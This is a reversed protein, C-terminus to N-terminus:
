IELYQKTMYTQLNKKFTTTNINKICPPVANWSKISSYFSGEQYQQLKHKPYNLDKRESARNEKLSQQQLYLQQINEPAKQDLAKKVHVALNIRRKAALPIMELKKLAQTSSTSKSLGLMSKAAYNQAQQIRNCNSSGCNNWIIDAYAFHPTVLSTYLVRRQKMPIVHNIRNLNRISSIAKQKVHTIHRNWDLSQDIYVGLLKLCKEGILIKTEEGNTVEVQLEDASSLRMKTGILMVETKTPNCLLSNSNYYDNAKKIAAELKRGLEKVIKGKIVIQMDDAYTFIEYEDLKELMDNTCTIFLLPGLISGQPVGSEIHEMKSKLRGFKVMQKRNTLYSKVWTTATENLGMEDLKRLILNHALSDFAKSLDLSAIAVYNGHDIHKKISEILEFLITTTSHYKRYAHQRPNLLNHSNYHTVLQDVASREFIKSIITLISVPRYQSPDNNDGKKHLAKVTAIKLQDPFIKTEYSLNVMNKIDETIVPTAAKILKAPLEDIGTAVNPKIRQILQKIKVATEPYFHFIGKSNLKLPSFNINLRRQVEIGVTSFYKNFRNATDENVIDPTIDEHYNHNTVDKLINWMKRPDGVYENIRKKYYERRCKKKLHTQMNKAAKYKEKDESRKYLRYLNLYMNKTRAIEQLEITYWPINIQKEKNKFTKVPAHKNAAKQVAALWSNFAANLDKREMSEKYNSEEVFIKVDENYSDINFSKYSRCTIEEEEINVKAKIYCYIGCHDSLGECTGAKRVLSDEERVWIHDIITASTESFRTPKSILQKLKYEEALNFLTKSDQTIDTKKMDCNFDGILILNNHLTKQLLEEMEINGNKDSKLLETYSARYVVGIMYKATKIRLTCWLIENLDHQLKTEVKIEVGKRILVAVGGGNTKGYKNKYEVSRDKRIIKYNEPVASGKPCSDDMWSETIFIAAPKINNAINELDDEKGLISRANFHLFIEEDKGKGRRILDWDDPLQDETCLKKKFSSYNINETTRCKLCNWKLHVNKSRTKNKQGKYQKLSMDSCKRHTHRQCTNCSMDYQLATIEKNCINCIDKGIYAKSSIKPLESWLNSKKIKKHTVPKKGKKRVKPKKETIEKNQNQEYRLAEFRNNLSNKENSCQDESNQIYNPQCTPNPCIWTYKWSALTTNHDSEYGCTSCLYEPNPDPNKHVYNSHTPSLDSLQTLKKPLHMEIQMSDYHKLYDDDKQIGEADKNPLPTKFCFGPINELEQRLSVTPSPHTSFHPLPPQKGIKSDAEIDPGLDEVTCKSINEPGPNLQIDGAILLLIILYAARSSIKISPKYRKQNRQILLQIALNLQSKEKLVSSPRPWHNTTEANYHSIGIILLTMTTFTLIVILKYPDIRHPGPNKEIDGSM